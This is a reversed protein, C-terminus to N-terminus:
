RGFPFLTVYIPTVHLATPLAPTLYFTHSIVVACDTVYAPTFPLTLTTHPTCLYGHLRLRPLPHADHLHTHTHTHTYCTRTTHTYFDSGCCGHYDGYGPLPSRLPFLLLYCAFPPAHIFYYIHSRTILQSRLVPPPFRPTAGPTHSSTHSDTHTYPLHCHSSCRTTHPVYRLPLRLLHHLSDVRFTTLPDVSYDPYYTSDVRSYVSCYTAAFTFLAVLRM